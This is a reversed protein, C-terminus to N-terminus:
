IQEWRWGDNDECKIPDGNADTGTVGHDDDRCYEGPTYCKGGDTLPSCGQPQQATTQVPQPAPAQPAQTTPPPPPPPVYAPAASTHVVAAATTKPPASTVPTRPKTAVPSPAASKSPAATHSSAATSGAVTPSLATTTTTPSSLAGPLVLLAVFGVVATIIVRRRVSWDNRLWLLVLGVPFFFILFLVVAVTRRYWPQTAQTSRMRQPTVGYPSIVFEDEDVWLQWGPPPQPWSPDPEWGPPPSWGAPPQPWNPPSNFRMFAGEAFSPSRPPDAFRELGTSTLARHVTM